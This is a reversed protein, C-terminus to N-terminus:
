SQQEEIRRYGVFWRPKSLWDRYRAVFCRVNEISPGNKWTLVYGDEEATYSITFGTPSFEKLLREHVAHAEALILGARENHREAEAFVAAIEDRNM